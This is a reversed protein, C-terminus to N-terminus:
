HGAIRTVQAAVEQWTDAKKVLTMTVRFQGGIDRGKLQGKTTSRYTAVAARGYLRITLDDFSASEYKLDGSRISAIRPAKKTLKGSEDAFTYDEAWIRDLTAADNHGLAAYLSTLVQRVAQEDNGRSNADRDMSQTFALSPALMLLAMVLNHKM